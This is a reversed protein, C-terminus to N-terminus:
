ILEELKRPTNAPQTEALFTLFGDWYGYAHLTDVCSNARFHACAAEHSVAQVMARANNRGMTRSETITPHTM